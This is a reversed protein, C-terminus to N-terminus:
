VVPAFLAEIDSRSLRMPEMVKDNVLADIIKTKKEKLAMIRQEVTDETVLRYVTVAKTQGIRHARDIAQDEVAPNWWPDYIVVTDASTLNLGTGGAKLSILFLRIDENSNFEDILDQRDKTSGDLSLFPIGEKQLFQKMLSLMDIFQCFVLIKRKAQLAEIILEQFLEFKGSEFGTNHRLSEISNPHNCIQRLRLLASLISISSAGVGKEEITALVKPRIEELVQAYLQAQSPKMQVHLVSELKPPLDKEVESKRRRLMFPKTKTQLLKGIEELNGQETIPRDFNNKFFEQTGLYGPMVFDMISWLELPRNETPTGTLALKARARLRKAAKTVNASPNKINQAEDLIVYMFEHKELEAQDLRLLAYSTICIHHNPIEAFHNKREPGQLLLVKLDPAFRRAEYQWNVVVSTPAVVLVPPLKVKPTEEEAVKKTTKKKLTKQTPEFEDKFLNHIFALTQVTKGLGMEDALIGGLKYENLFHLWSLGEEQYSRLQGTFGARVPARELRSFNSLKDQLEMLAKDSSITIGAVEKSKSLSIARALDLDAEIKTKASFQPDVFGFLTRLYQISGGPAKAYAGSDLRVWKDSDLKSPRFLVSIPIAAKNQELVVNCTFWDSAKTKLKTDNLSNVSINVNLDAFKIQKSVLDLGSTLWPKSFLSSGEQIIDLASDGSAAFIGATQNIFGLNELTSKFSQEQERNPLIVINEDKPNPPYVFTLAGKLQLEEKSSFHEGGTKILSFEISPVPEGLIPTPAENINKQIIYEDINVHEVSLNQTLSELIPAVSIRPVQLEGASPIMSVIKEATETLRYLTRGVSGWKPSDGM